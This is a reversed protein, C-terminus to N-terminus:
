TERRVLECREMASHHPSKHTHPRRKAPLILIMLAHSIVPRRQTATNRGAAPITPLLSVLHIREMYPRHARLPKLLRPHGALRLPGCREPGRGSSSDCTHENDGTCTSRILVDHHRLVQQQARWIDRLSALAVANSSRWSPVPVPAHSLNRQRLVLNPSTKFV